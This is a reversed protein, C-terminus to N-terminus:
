NTTVNAEMHICVVIMAVIDPKNRLDNEALVSALM